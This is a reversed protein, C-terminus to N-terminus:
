MNSKSKLVVDPEPPSLENDTGWSKMWKMMAEHSIYEGTEDAEKIAADIREQMWAHKQVYHELAESILFAKSRKTSAALVELSQNLDEDVRASIMTKPM